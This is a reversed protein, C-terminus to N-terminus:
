KVTSPSMSLLLTGTHSCTLSFNTTFLIPSNETPNGIPYLGPKVQIPVQPIPTLHEAQPCSRFPWRRRCTGPVVVIGYKMTLILGMTVGRNGRPTHVLMPHGFVWPFGRKVSFVGSSRARRSSTRSTAGAGPQEVIDEVGALSVQRGPRCTPQPQIGQVLGAPM